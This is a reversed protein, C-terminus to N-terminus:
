AVAGEIAALREVLADIVEDAIVEKREDRTLVTVDATAYVPYREVMLREMVARPDPNKLLPRNQKKSVREMLVNIDAKLWVTVGHGAIAARTHENMFAGGGTSLVQPGNELIRAIVRQELARFEVEGYREFLDPIGMRSATEIEHDSDLFPLDLAAAVKRGIATKGAGMLGVFVISRQGLRRLLQARGDGGLEQVAKSQGRNESM